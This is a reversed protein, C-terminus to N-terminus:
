IVEKLPILEVENIQMLQPAITNMMMSVQRAAYLTQFGGVCQQLMREVIVLRLEGSKADKMSIHRVVDGIKYKFLENLLGPLDKALQERM